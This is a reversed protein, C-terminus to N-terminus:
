QHGSRYRSGTRGHPPAFSSDHLCHMHRSVFLAVRPVYDTFHLNWKMKLQRALPAFASPIAERDLDAADNGTKLV